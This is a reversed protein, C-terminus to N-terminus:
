LYPGSLVRPGSGDFPAFSLQNNPSDGHGGGWFLFGWVGGMQGVDAGSFAFLGQPSWLEPNGGDPGFTSAEPAVAPGLATNPVQVWTGESSGLAQGRGESRDSSVVGPSCALPVALALLFGYRAHVHM